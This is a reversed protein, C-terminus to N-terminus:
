RPPLSSRQRQRTAGGFVVHLVLRRRQHLVGAFEVLLRRLVVAIDLIHVLARLRADLLRLTRSVLGRLVRLVGGLLGVLGLGRGVVHRLAGVREVGHHLAQVVVLLNGVDGDVEAEVLGHQGLSSM